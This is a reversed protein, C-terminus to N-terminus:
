EDCEDEIDYPIPESKVAKKNVIGSNGDMDQIILRFPEKGECANLLREKLALTNKKQEEDASLLINDLVKIIRFIVGEVNSIFAECMPGPEILVGFEPIEITGQSSRIVRSNLDEASNIELTYRVPEGDGLVLTDVSRFGCECIASALMVESFYPIRETQYIYQIETSCVPCPAVIVRRM